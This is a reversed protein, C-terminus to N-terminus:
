CVRRHFPTLFEFAVARANALLGGASTVAVHVSTSPLEAAGECRITITATGGLLGGRKHCVLVRRAADSDAVEWGSLDDVMERASEFVSDPRTAVLIPRSRPDAADARTEFGAGM